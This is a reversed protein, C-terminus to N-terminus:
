FRINEIFILESIYNGNLTVNVGTNMLVKGTLITDANTGDEFTLRYSLDAHLGKFKITQTNEPSNPKFIYVVGKQKAPDYYEMGTWVLDDPRPFIHYVQITASNFLPRIKTKYSIVAATIENKNQATMDNPDKCFTGGGMFASRFVYKNNAVKVDSGYGELQIPPFIYLHDYFSRQMDLASFSDAISVKVSRRMTGFDMISGSGECNEWQFNHINDYLNDIVEYFGKCHWYNVDEAYHARTGTGFSGEPFSLKTVDANWTGQTILAGATGDSRWLDIKWNDFMYKIQNVRDSKGFNSTMSAPRDWYLGWRMGKYSLYNRITVPGMSWDVPDFKPTVPLIKTSGEWWGVDFMLEEFGMNSILDITSYFKDQNTNWSDPKDAFAAYSNFQVKPYGDSRIVAPVSYNYLYQRLSNGSDDLDGKYAGIFAPPVDFTEGDDLDTKFNDGNGARLHASYPMNNAGIYIRGFIWEVGLYMGNIGNADIVVYPVYDQQDTFNLIKSYGTGLKDQFMGEGNVGGYGGKAWGGDKFYCVNPSSVPGTIQVDLSEQNYITVTQGSINKVFMTHRIPGPGSRAQWVIKLELAPNANIFRIILKNGDNKDVIGDKYVWNPTYQKGGIDIRSILPFLSPTKTWNWGADPNSLEYIYLKQDPGIGITLKTDATKLTWSTSKKNVTYAMCIVSYVLAFILLPIKRIKLNRLLIKKKM